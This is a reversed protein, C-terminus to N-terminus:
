ADLDGGEIRPSDHIAPELDGLDQDHRVGVGRRGLQGIANARPQAFVEVGTRRVQADLRHVGLRELSFEVSRMVGDYTYNYEEKRSPM